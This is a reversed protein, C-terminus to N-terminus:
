SSIMGLPMIQLTKPCKTVGNTCHRKVATIYTIPRRLAGKTSILLHTMVALPTRKVESIVNFANNADTMWKVMISLSLFSQLVDQQYAGPRIDEAMRPWISSMKIILLHTMAARSMRLVQYISTSANDAEIM